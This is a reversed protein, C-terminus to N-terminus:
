MFRSSYVVSECRALCGLTHKKTHMYETILSVLGKRIVVTGTRPSGHSIIPSCQLHAMLYISGGEERRKRGREKLGERGERWGERWKRKGGERGREGGRERM